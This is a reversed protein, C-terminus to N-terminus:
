VNEKEKIELSLPDAEPYIPMLHQPLFWSRTGIGSSSSGGTRSRMHWHLGEGEVEWCDVRSGDELVGETVEKLTVTKGINRPDSISGIVIAQIGPKLEKNYSM